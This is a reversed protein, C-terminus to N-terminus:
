EMEFAQAARGTPTLWRDVGARERDGRATTGRDLRQRLRLRSRRDGLPPRWLRLVIAAAEGRDVALPARGPRM